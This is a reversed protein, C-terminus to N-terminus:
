RPYRSPEVGAPTATFLDGERTVSRATLRYSERGPAPEYRLEAIMADHPAPPLNAAPLLAALAQYDLPGAPYLNDSAGAAYAFLAMRISGVNAYTAEWTAKDKNQVMGTVIRTPENDGCAPLLITALLLIPLLYPLARTSTMKMMGKM